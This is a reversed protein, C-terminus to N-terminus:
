CSPEACCRPGCCVCRPQACCWALRSRLLTSPALPPTTPENKLTACRKAEEYKYAVCFRRLSDLNSSANQWEHYQGKEKRLKDLAPVIDETLVQVVPLLVAGRLEASRWSLCDWWYRGPCSPELAGCLQLRM